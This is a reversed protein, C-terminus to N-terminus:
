KRNVLLIRLFLRNLLYKSFIVTQLTIVALTQLSKRRSDAFVKAGFTQWLQRYNRWFKTLFDSNLIELHFLSNPSEHNTWM